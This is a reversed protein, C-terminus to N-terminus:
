SPNQKRKYEGLDDLAEHAIVHSLSSYAGFMVRTAGTTMVAVGAFLGTVSGLAAGAIAGGVGGARYGSYAGHAAGIVVALPAVGGDIQDMEEYTLERM